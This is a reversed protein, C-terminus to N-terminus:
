FDQEAWSHSPMPPSRPPSFKTLPKPTNSATNSPQNPTNSPKFATGFPPPDPQLEAHLLDAINISLASRGAFPLREAYITQYTNPSTKIQCELAVGHNQKIIPPLGYTINRVKGVSFDYAFFNFIGTQKATFVIRPFDLDSDISITFDRQLYTNTELITKIAILHAISGTGTPLENPLLPNTKAVFVQLESNWRFEISVNTSLLAFIHFDNVSFVGNVLIPSDTLFTAQLVNQSFAVPPLPNQLTIAM